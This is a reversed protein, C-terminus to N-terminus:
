KDATKNEWPFDDHLPSLGLFNCFRQYAELKAVNVVLLKGPRDKFYEQVEQNHRQYNKVHLVKNYPDDKPAKHLKEFVKALWGTEVYSAQQLDEWTPTNGNKGFVKSHHGVLSRHWQDPTDRVSLIFKADPFAKDLYKYTEPFSFPFDQFVQASKCYEIIPEYNKLIYDDLLYEAQRQNGLLFGYDKFTRELTTTGTKNCGICFIKYKPLDTKNHQYRSTLFQKIRQIIEM